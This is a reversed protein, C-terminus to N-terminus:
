GRAGREDGYKADIFCETCLYYFGDDPGCRHLKELDGCMSCKFLPDKQEMQQVKENCQHWIVRQKHTLQNPDSEKLEDWFRQEFESLRM